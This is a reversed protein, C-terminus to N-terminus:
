VEGCMKHDMTIIEFYKSAEQYSFEFNKADEEDVISV